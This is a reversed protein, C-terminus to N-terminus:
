VRTRYPIYKEQHVKPSCSFNPIFPMYNKKLSLIKANNLIYELRLSDKKQLLRSLDHHFDVVSEPTRENKRYDALLRGYARSVQAAQRKMNSQDRKVEHIKEYTDHNYALWFFTYGLVTSVVINKLGFSKM